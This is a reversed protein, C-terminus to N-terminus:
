LRLTGIRSRRRSSSSGKSARRTGNHVIDNSYDHYYDDDSEEERFDDDRVGDDYYSKISGEDGDSSEDIRKQEENMIYFDDNRKTLCRSIGFAVEGASGCSLVKDTQNEAKREFMEYDLVIDKEASGKLSRCMMDNRSNEFIKTQFYM